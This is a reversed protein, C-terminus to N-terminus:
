FIVGELHCLHLIVIFNLISIPLIYKWIISQGKNASYNTFINKVSFVLILVCVIKLLFSLIQFIIEYQPFVSMIKGMGPFISYGGLFLLTFLSILSVLRGYFSMRYIILSSGSLESILGGSLEANSCSFDFPRINSKILIFVFFLIVTVPWLMFILSSKEQIAVIQHLNGTGYVALCSLISLIFPIEISVDTSVKRLFSLIGLKNKLEYSLLFEFCIILLNVIVFFYITKDGVLLELFENEGQIFIPNAFPIVTIPIISLIFISFVLIGCKRSSSENNTIIEKIGLKLINCLISKNLLKRINSKGNSIFVNIVRKEVFIAIIILILSAALTIISKIILIILSSIM